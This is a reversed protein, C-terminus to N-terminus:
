FYEWISNTYSPVVLHKQQEALPINRLSEGPEDDNLEIEKSFNLKWINEGM